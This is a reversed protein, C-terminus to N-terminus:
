CRGCRSGAATLLQRCCAADKHAGARREVSRMQRSRNLRGLSVPLAAVTRGCALARKAARSFPAGAREAPASRRGGHPPVQEVSALVAAEALVRKSRQAHDVQVVKVGHGALAGGGAGRRACTDAGRTVNCYPQCWTTRHSVLQGRRNCGLLCAAVGGLRCSRRQYAQWRGIHTITIHDCRLAARHDFYRGPFSPPGQLGPSFAAQIEQLLQRRARACRRRPLCPRAGFGAARGSPRGPAERSRCGAAQGSLRRAHLLSEAAALPCAGLTM